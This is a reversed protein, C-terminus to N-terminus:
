RNDLESKARVLLDDSLSLNDTNWSTPLEYQKMYQILLTLNDEIFMDDQEISMDYDSRLLCSNSNHSSDPRGTSASFGADQTTGVPHGTPVNM